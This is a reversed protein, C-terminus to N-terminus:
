QSLRPESGGRLKGVQGCPPMAEFSIPTAVRPLGILLRGCTALRGWMLPQKSKIFFAAVALAV